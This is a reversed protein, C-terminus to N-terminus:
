ASVEAEIERRNEWLYNGAEPCWDMLKRIDSMLAHVASSYDEDSDYGLAAWLYSHRKAYSPDNLHHAVIMSMLHDYM